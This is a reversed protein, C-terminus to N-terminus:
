FFMDTAIYRDSRFRSSLRARSSISCWATYLSGGLHSKIWFFLSSSAFHTASKWFRINSLVKLSSKSIILCLLSSRAIQIFHYNFSTKFLWLHELSTGSFGVALHVSKREQFADFVVLIEVSVRRHLGFCSPLSANAFLYYLKYQICHIWGSLLSRIRCHLCWRRERCPFSRHCRGRKQSRLWPVRQRCLCGRCLHIALIVM